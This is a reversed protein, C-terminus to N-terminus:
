SCDGENNLQFRIWEKPRTVPLKFRRSQTCQFLYPREEHNESEKNYKGEEYEKKYKVINEQIDEEFDSLILNVDFSINDRKNEWLKYGFARCSAELLVECDLFAVTKAFNKLKELEYGKLAELIKCTHYNKLNILGDPNFKELFVIERANSFFGKVSDIEQQSIPMSVFVEEFSLSVDKSYDKCLYKINCTAICEKLEGCTMWVGQSDEQKDCLEMSVITSVSLLTFVCVLIMKKMKM